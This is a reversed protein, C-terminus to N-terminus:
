ETIQRPTKIIIKMTDLDRFQGYLPYYSIQIVSLSRKKKDLTKVINGKELREFENIKM